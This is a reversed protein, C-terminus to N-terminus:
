LDANKRGRAMVTGENDAKKLENELYNHRKAIRECLDAAESRLRASESKALVRSIEQVRKEILRRLEKVDFVSEFLRRFQKAYLDRGEPAAM